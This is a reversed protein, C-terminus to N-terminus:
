WKKYIVKEIMEVATEILEDVLDFDEPRKLGGSSNNAAAAAAFDAFDVKKANPQIFAKAKAKRRTRM